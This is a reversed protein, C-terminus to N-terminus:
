RGFLELRAILSSTDWRQGGAAEIEAYFQDVLSAVPLRAGSARAEQLLAAWEDDRADRPADRHAPPKEPWANHRRTTPRMRHRQPLYAAAPLLLAVRLLTQRAAM